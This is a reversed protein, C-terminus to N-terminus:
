WRNVWISYFWIAHWILIEEFHALVHLRAHDLAFIGQDSPQTLVSVGISVCAQVNCGLGAVLPKHLVQELVFNIIGVSDIIPLLSRQHWQQNFVFVFLSLLNPEHQSLISIESDFVKIIFPCIFNLLRPHIWCPSTEELM